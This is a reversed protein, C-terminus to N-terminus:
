RRKSYRPLWALTANSELTPNIMAAIEAAARAKIMPLGASSARHGREVAALVADLPYIWGVGTPNEDGSCRRWAKSRCYGSLPRSQGATMTSDRDRAVRSPAPGRRKANWGRSGITQASLSSTDEGGYLHDRGQRHIKGTVTRGGFDGHGGITVKDGAGVTAM